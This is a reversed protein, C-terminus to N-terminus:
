AGAAPGEPPAPAKLGFLESILETWRRGHGARSRDRLAVVPAHLVKNV